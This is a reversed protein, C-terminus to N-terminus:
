TRNVEYRNVAEPILRLMPIAMKRDLERLDESLTYIEKSDISRPPVGPRTSILNQRKYRGSYIASHIVENRRKFCKEACSLTKRMEVFENENLLKLRKKAVKIKRDIPWTHQEEPYEEIPALLLLLEHISSELYASHLTVFGLGRVEDQKDPLM